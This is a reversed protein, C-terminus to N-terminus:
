DVGCRGYGPQVPRQPGEIEPRAPCLASLLSVDACRLGHAPTGTHRRRPPEVHDHHPDPARREHAPLARGAAEAGPLGEGSNPHTLPLRMAASEPPRIDVGWAALQVAALPEVSGASPRHEDGGAMPDGFSAAWYDGASQSLVYKAFSKRAEAMDADFQLDKFGSLFANLNIASNSWDAMETARLLFGDMALPLYGVDNGLGEAEILTYVLFPYRRGAKDVSPKFLGAVIRGTTPHCFIFRSPPAADFASDWHSGLEEYGQYIGEQIWRDLDQVERSAANYRIFDGHLPLKGLCGSPFSTM